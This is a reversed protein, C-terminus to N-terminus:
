INNLIEEKIRFMIKEKNGEFTTFGKELGKLIKNKLENDVM